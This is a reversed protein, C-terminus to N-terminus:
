KKDLLFAIANIVKIGGFNGLNYEDLTILFKPYNDKISQLPLLETKLKDSDLVSASVQYYEVGDSNTAVFDVERDNLKGVNVNYGRSLLELYIVNELVHGIDSDSNNLM